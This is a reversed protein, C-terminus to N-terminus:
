VTWVVGKTVIATAYNLYIWTKRRREYLLYRNKRMRKIDYMRCVYITIHKRIISSSLIILYDIMVKLYQM